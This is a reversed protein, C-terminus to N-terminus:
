VSFLCNKILNQYKTVKDMSLFNCKWVLYQYLRIILNLDWIQPAKKHTVSATKFNLEHLIQPKNQALIQQM